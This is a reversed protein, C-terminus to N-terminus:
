RHLYIELILLPYTAQEVEKNVTVRYDGCIRIEDNKKPVVVIPTALESSDVKSFIGDREMQDLTEEVNCAIAYPVPRARM